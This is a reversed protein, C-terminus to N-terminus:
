TEKAGSATSGAIKSYQVYDLDSVSRRVFFVEQTARENEEGM